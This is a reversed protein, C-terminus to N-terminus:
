GAAGIRPTSTGHFEARGINQPCLVLHLEALTKEDWWSMEHVRGFGKRLFRAELGEPVLLTFEGPLRRLSGLHLHDYHAHSLVVVDIPPLHEIAIGPKALRAGMGMRNAWVPDTM